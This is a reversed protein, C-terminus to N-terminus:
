CVLYSDKFGTVKKSIIEGAELSTDKALEVTWYDESLGLSVKPNKSNIIMLSKTSGIQKQQLQAFREMSLARLVKSRQMILSRDWKNALRTAYTGPRESYPFVHIKSWPTNKLRDYILQFQEETEGPFGVIVDMGVFANPLKKHIKNLITTVDNANYNRKMNKLVSDELSQISMHFHPCMRSNSYLDLLRDSLELPELSSIRIRPMQTKLLVSEILDELRRPQTLEIDEYDAIHIGTIVVERIGSDYLDNIKKVINKIPISRSKGRAFPIVCYTCFSNCGDQIKLFSRTHSSETGGDEELDEIKFINSKFIKQQNQNTSLEGFIKTIQSKHSNAVIVDVDTNDLFADTDVQASCGTVMVKAKPFKRKAKRIERIAEKTAEATVACTNFVLVEPNESSETLGDSQFRKQILGADYSNVKCGFNKVSFTPSPKLTDM